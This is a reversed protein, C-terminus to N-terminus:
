RELYIAVTKKTANHFSAFFERENRKFRIDTERMVRLAQRMLLSYTREYPNKVSFVPFKEDKNIGDFECALKWYYQIADPLNM